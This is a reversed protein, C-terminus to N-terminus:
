YKALYATSDFADTDSDGVHPWRNSALVDLNAITQMM